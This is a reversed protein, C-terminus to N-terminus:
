FVSLGGSRIVLATLLFSGCSLVWPSSVLEKLVRTSM